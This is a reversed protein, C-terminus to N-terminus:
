TRFYAARQLGAPKGDANLTISGSLTHTHTPDSITPDAVTHIHASVTHTHASGGAAGAGTQTISNLLTSPGSTNGGGGSGTNGPGSATVGTAANAVTPTGSVTPAVAANTANSTGAQLFSPTALNPLTITGLSGDSKLYSVGVAGNYLHWGNGPAVEFLQMQGSGLEGPAWGWGSGSWQLTHLFSTDTVFVLLGTDATGLKAALASLQSQTRKFTGSVYIWTPIKSVYQSQYIIGNRDTVVFISGLFNAPAYDSQMSAYTGSYSGAAAAVAATSSGAELKTIRGEAMDFRQNLRFCDNVLDTQRIQLTTNAM